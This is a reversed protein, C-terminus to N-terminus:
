KVNHLYIISIIIVYAMFHPVKSNQYFCSKHAYPLAVILNSDGRMRSNANRECLFDVYESWVSVFISCPLVILFFWNESRYVVIVLFMQM